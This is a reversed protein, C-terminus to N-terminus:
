ASMLADLAGLGHAIGVDCSLYSCPFMELPSTPMIDVARTPMETSECTWGAGHSHQLTRPPVYPQHVLLLFHSHTARAVPYTLSLFLAECGTVQEYCHIM